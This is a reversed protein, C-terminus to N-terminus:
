NSKWTEASGSDRRRDRGLTGCPCLHRIVQGVAMSRRTQREALRPRYYRKWLTYAAVHSLATVVPIRRGRKGIVAVLEAEFDVQNSEIPLEVLAEHGILASPLKSFIIPEPPVEAGQEEAHEAYNRGVALIKAPSGLPPSGSCAISTKWPRFVTWGVSCHLITGSGTTWVRRIFNGPQQRGALPRDVQQVLLKVLM